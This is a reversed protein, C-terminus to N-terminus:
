AIGRLNQAAFCRSDPFLPLGKGASLASVRLHPLLLIRLENDAHIQTMQPGNRIRNRSAAGPQNHM